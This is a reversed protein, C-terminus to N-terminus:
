AGVTSRTSLLLEHHVQVQSVHSVRDKLREDSGLTQKLKIRPIQLNPRKTITTTKGM